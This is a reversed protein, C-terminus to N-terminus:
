AALARAATIKGILAARREAVPPLAAARSAAAGADVAAAYALLGGLERAALRGAAEVSLGHEAVIEATLAHLELARAVLRSAARHWCIGEGRTFAECGCSGNATYFVGARTASPVRLAHREADYALVDQEILWAWATTLARLWPGGPVVGSAYDFASCLADFIEVRQVSAFRALERRASATTLAAWTTILFTLAGAADRTTHDSLLENRLAYAAAYVTSAATTTCDATSM